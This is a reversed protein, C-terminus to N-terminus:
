SHVLGDVLAAVRDRTTVTQSEPAPQRLLHLTGRLHLIEAHSRSDRDRLLPYHRDRRRRATTGPHDGAALQPAGSRISVPQM